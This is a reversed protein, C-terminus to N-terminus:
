SAESQHPTLDRAEFRIPSVLRLRRRSSHSGRAEAALRERAAWRLHEAQLEKALRYLLDSNVYVPAEKQSSTVLTFNYTIASVYRGCYSPSEFM